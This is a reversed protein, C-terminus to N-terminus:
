LELIRNSIIKGLEIYKANLQRTNTPENLFKYKTKGVGVKMDDLTGKINIGFKFPIPSKLISVHYNFENNLSHDGGIAARYRDLQIIFPFIEVAGNDIAMQVSLSDVVNREKNKFMLLKSIETFTKGDLLVLNEGRLAITANIDNPHITFGPYFKTDALLKFNLKGEFSNLMPMLTDLSPILEIVSHVDISKSSLKIGAAATGDKLNSDYVITTVLKAGHAAVALNELRAVGNKLTVKGSMDEVKLRGLEIRRFNTNLDFDITKPIIFLRMETTDAVVNSKEVAEKTMEATVKTTDYESKSSDSKHPAMQNFTHAIQTLNMMSSSVDVKVRLPKEGRSASLLDSVIGSVMMDSDGVKFTAEKLNIDQDEFSLSTKPMSMPLPFSPVSINIGLFDISGKLKKDVIKLDFKATNMNFTNDVARLYLTDTAFKLAITNSIQFAVSSRGSCVELSDGLMSGCLNVYDFKGALYSKEDSRVGRAVFSLSDLSVGFRKADVVIDTMEGKAKLLGDTSSSLNITLENFSSELRENVDFIVNVFAIDGNAKIQAYDGAEITSKAFEGDSILRIKGGITLEKSLPFTSALGTLNITSNTSYRVKADGLLNDITCKLNISTSAGLLNLNDIKLQSSNKLDLYLKAKLNLKDIGYQMGEYKLAADTISLDASLVPINGDKYGGILHADLLINGSTTVKKSQEIFPIFTLLSELTPVKLSLKADIINDDVNGTLAFKVGNIEVSSEKIKINRSETNLELLAATSLNLHKALLKGDHWIIANGFSFTFNLDSFHQMMNGDISMNVDRLDAYLKKQRDDFLIEGDVIKIGSLSINLSEKDVSVDNKVEAKVIQNSVPTEATIQASKMINWNEVGDESVRAKIVPKILELKKVEVRKEVLLAIPNVEINMQEFSALTDKSLTELAGGSIEVSFQPFTSFFTLEVSSLSLKANLNENAAKEIIPSLKSPTFIFNIVVAITITILVILSLITLLTYRIIKM